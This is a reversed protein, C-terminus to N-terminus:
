EKLIDELTPAFRDWGPWTDPQNKFIEDYNEAKAAKVLERGLISYAGCLALTVVLPDTHSVSSIVYNFVSLGKNKDKHKMPVVYCVRTGKTMYDSDADPHWADAYTSSLDDLNVNQKLLVSAVNITFDFRELEKSKAFRVLMAGEHGMLSKALGHSYSPPVMINEQLSDRLAKVAETADEPPLGYEIAQKYAMDYNLKGQKFPVRVAQKMDFGDM